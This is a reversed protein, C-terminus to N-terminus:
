LGAHRRDADFQCGGGGPPLDLRHGDRDTVKWENTASNLAIRRYSENETAHTGGTACSPSVMGATCAVMAQGDLLYIDNADYAPMGYGPSAREIVDFGDLGWAYGLWGQYLGGLKTKRSSNYNLAIQPEIGHFAPVDIGIAYGLNGNGAAKPLDVKPTGIAEPDGSDTTTTAAAMAQAAPEEPAAETDTTKATEADGAKTGDTSSSGDGAKADAPKAGVKAAADPSGSGSSGDGTSQASSSSSPSGAAQGGAGLAAGGNGYGAASNGATASSSQNEQALAAM